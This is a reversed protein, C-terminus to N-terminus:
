FCQCYTRQYNITNVEVGFLEAMSKQTLWVTEDEIYVDIRVDGSPATYLLIKNLETNMDNEEV